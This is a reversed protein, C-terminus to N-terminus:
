RVWVEIPDGPNGSVPRPLAVFGVTDCWRYSMNPFYIDVQCFSSNRFVVTRYEPPMAFDFHYVIAAVAAPWDKRSVAERIQYDALKM